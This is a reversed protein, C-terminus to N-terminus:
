LNILRFFHPSSMTFLGTEYFLVSTQTANLKSTKSVYIRFSNDALPWEEGIKCNNQESLEQLQEYTTTKKLTVDFEDTIGQRASYYMYEASVVYERAKFSDIIYSPIRKGEKSEFALLDFGLIGGKLSPVSNRIVYLQETTFNPTLKVSIKNQSEPLYDRVNGNYFYHENECKGYTVDTEIVSDESMKKTIMAYVWNNHGIRSVDYRKIDVHLVYHADQQRLSGYIDSVLLQDPNVGEVVLLSHKSFDISPFDVYGTSGGSSIYNKLEDTSNIVITKSDPVRWLWDNWTWPGPLFYDWSTDPEVYREHYGTVKLPTGMSIDMILEQTTENEDFIIIIESTPPTTEGCSQCELTAYVICPQSKLWAVLAQLQQEDNLGASLGSLFEDVFPITKDINEINLFTCFKDEYKRYGAVRLPYTMTVDLSFKKTIGNEDFSIVIESTPPTTEGCSQCEVKADVICPQSKLWTALAQLQQQDDIALLSSLFDDVFPITKDINEENLFSCFDEEPEIYEQYGAAKLPTSMTIELIFNKTTGNEDFSVAIQSKPPNTEVCSKCFVTANIICSCSKLWATLEQLQQEDNLGDSLGSLFEDVFPITKDINEVNLFSCFKEKAVNEDYGNNKDRNCGALVAALFVLCLSAVAVKQWCEFSIKTVRKM